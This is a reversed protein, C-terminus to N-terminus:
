LGISSLISATIIYFLIVFAWWTIGCFGFYNALGVGVILTLIFPLLIICVVILLLIGFIGLGLLGMM